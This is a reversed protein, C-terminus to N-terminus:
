MRRRYALGQVRGLGNPWFIPVRFNTLSVKHCFDQEQMLNRAAHVLSRLQGALKFHPSSNHGAPFSNDFVAMTEWRKRFRLEFGTEAM